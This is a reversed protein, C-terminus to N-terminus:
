QLLSEVDASIKEKFINFLEKKLTEDKIIAINLADDVIFQRAIKIVPPNINQVLLAYDLDDKTINALCTYQQNNALTATDGIELKKM